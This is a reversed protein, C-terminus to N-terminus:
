ASSVGFPRLDPVGTRRDNRIMAQPRRSGLGRHILTDMGRCLTLRPLRRGRTSTHRSRRTARRARPTHRRARMTPRCSASRRAPATPTATPSLEPRGSAAADNIQAPTFTAEAAPSRRSRRRCSASLRVGRDSRRSTARITRRGLNTRASSPRASGRGNKEDPLEALPVLGKLENIFKIISGHESYHHSITGAAAYPSIM